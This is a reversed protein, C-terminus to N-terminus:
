LSSSSALLSSTNTILLCSLHLDSIGGHQNNKSGGGQMEATRPEQESGDSSDSVM